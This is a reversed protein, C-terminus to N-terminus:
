RECVHWRALSAGGIVRVRGMARGMVRVRGLYLVSSVLSLTCCVAPVGAREALWTGTHVRVRVRVRVRLRHVRVRVRVRHM